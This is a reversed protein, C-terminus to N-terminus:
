VGTRPANTRVHVLIKSSRPLHKTHLCGHTMRHMFLSSCFVTTFVRSQLYVPSHISHLAADQTM